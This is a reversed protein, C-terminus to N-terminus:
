TRVEDSDNGIGVQFTISSPSPHGDLIAKLEARVGAAETELAAARILLDMLRDRDVIYVTSM